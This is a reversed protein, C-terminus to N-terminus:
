YKRRLERWRLKREQRSRSGAEHSSLGGASHHQQWFFKPDGTMYEALTDIAGNLSAVLTYQPSHFGYAAGYNIALNRTVDMYALLREEDDKTFSPKGRRQIMKKGLHSSDLRTKDYSCIYFM